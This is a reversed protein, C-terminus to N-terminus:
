RSPEKRLLTMEEPGVTARVIRLPLAQGSGGKPRHGDLNFIEEADAPGRHHGAQKPVM